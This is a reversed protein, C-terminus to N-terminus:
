KKIKSKNYEKVAELQATVEKIRKKYEEETLMGSECLMKLNILEEKLDRRSAIEALAKDMIEEAIIILTEVPWFLVKELDDLYLLDYKQPKKGPPIKKKAM